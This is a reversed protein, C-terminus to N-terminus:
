SKKWTSHFEVARKLRQEILDLEHKPTAIGHTAKKQFVHLVYIAEEFRVTYVARYTGSRYDEVIELVAAGGFRKLPKANPHKKGTQALFLAYGFADQIAAPLRCLDDKSSGVWVIPKIKM